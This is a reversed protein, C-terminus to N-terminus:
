WYGVCSTGTVGMPARKRKPKLFSVGMLSSKMEGSEMKIKKDMQKKMSLDGHIKTGDIKKGFM